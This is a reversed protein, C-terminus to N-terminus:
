SGQVRSVAREVTEILERPSFAALPEGNVFFTPTGRVGLAEVDRRDANILGITEPSQMLLRAREEELGAAAAIGMIREPAPAGHSAWENQRDLLAELVPEFVGQDRAAELIAIAVESGEGHFPTYRLVVRVTDPNQALIRKVTPHFARCAECAPDFFEVITVPADERGLVPSHPRVLRDPESVEVRTVATAASDPAPTRGMSTLWAAAGFLGFAVVLTLLVLTTKKM